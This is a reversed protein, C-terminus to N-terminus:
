IAPFVNLYQIFTALLLKDEFPEVVPERCTLLVILM